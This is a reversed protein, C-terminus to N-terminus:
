TWYNCRSSWGMSIGLPLGVVLGIFYGLFLLRLSYLTSIGLTAWDTAFVGAVSEISPFYPLPLSGSKITLLEWVIALGVILTLLPAKEHIRARIRDIRSSVVLCFVYMGTGLCTVVDFFRRGVVPQRDPLLYHIAMFAAIACVSLALSSAMNNIRNM